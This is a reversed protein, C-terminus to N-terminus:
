GAVEPRQAAALLTSAPRLLRRGEGERRTMGVRDLYELIEVSLNRGIGLADRFNTPKLNGARALREATRAWQAATETPAFRNRGIRVVLGLREARRLVSMVREPEARLLKAIENAVPPANGAVEFLPEIDRWLAADAAQLAPRHTPLRWWPGTADVKNEVWLADLVAAVVAPGAPGGATRRLTGTDPGLRDPQGKHAMALAALLRTGLDQWHRPALAVGGARQMPVAVALADRAAGDLNRALFFRDLDVGGPTA